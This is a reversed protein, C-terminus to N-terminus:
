RLVGGANQMGFRLGNAITELAMAHHQENRPLLRLFM